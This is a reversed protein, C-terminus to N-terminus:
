AGSSDRTRWCASSPPKGALLMEATVVMMSGDVASHDPVEPDMPEGPQNTAVLVRREVEADDHQPQEHRGEDAVLDVQEGLLARERGAALDDVEILAEEEANQKGDAHEYVGQAPQDLLLLLQPAAHRGLLLRPLERQLIRQGSEGVPALEVLSEGCRHQSRGSGAGRVRHKQEIEVSELADVVHVSVSGA